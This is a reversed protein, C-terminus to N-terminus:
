INKAKKAHSSFDEGRDIAKRRQEDDTHQYIMTTEIRKHGLISQVTPLDVGNRCMMTGGTHRLLHPGYSLKNLKFNKLMYKEVLKQAGRVGLPRIKGNYKKATIFLSDQQEYSLRYELMEKINELTEEKVPLLQQHGGKRTILIQKETFFIDQIRLAVLESVRIAPNILLDLIVLDRAIIAPNKNEFVSNYISRIEATNPIIREKKYLKPTPLLNAYNDIVVYNAELFEYFHAIYRKQTVKTSNVLTRSKFYEQLLTKSSGSPKEVGRKCAFSAVKELLNLRMGITSVAHRGSDTLEDQYREIAEKWTWHSNILEDM